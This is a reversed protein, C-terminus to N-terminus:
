DHAARTERVQAVVKDVVVWLGDPDVKRNKMFEHGWIRFVNWGKDQAFKTLRQDKETVGDNLYSHFSHQECGHWFCGDVLIGLRVSPVTIDFSIPQNFEWKGSSTLYVDDGIESCRLALYIREELTSTFKSHSKHGKSIAATLEAYQDPTLSRWHEKTKRSREESFRAAHLGFAARHAARTKERDEPDANKCARSCYLKVQPKSFPVGCVKCNKERTRAIFASKCANKCFNGTRGRKVDSQILKFQKSCNLCEFLTSQGVSGLIKSQFIQKARASAWDRTTTDPGCSEIRM